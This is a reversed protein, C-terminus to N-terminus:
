ETPPPVLGAVGETDPTVHHLGPVAAFARDASVVADAGTELAVACLVADFAGLADDREFLTLGALLHQRQVTVLPDLLEAYDAATKAADRRDTRRARVHTFEQIVEPTTTADIRGDGIAEILTRCPDRLEHDRGLAYVLVTTDLVIM